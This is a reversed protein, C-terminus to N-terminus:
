EKQKLAEDLANKLSDIQEQTPLLRPQDVKMYREIEAATAGLKKRREWLTADGGKSITFVVWTKDTYAAGGEFVLTRSAADLKLLRGGDSLGKEGAAVAGMSAHDPVDGFVRTFVVAPLLFVDGIAAFPFSVITGLSVGSDVLRYCYYFYSGTPTLKEQKLIGWTGARLPVKSAAVETGMSEHQPVFDLGFQLVRDNRDSKALTEAVTKALQIQGATVPNGLSFRSVLDGVFSIFGSTEEAEASDYEYVEIEVHLVDSELHKPGYTIRSIQSAFSEDAIGTMPGLIKVLETSEADAPGERFRFVVVVENATGLDPLYKFFANDFVLFFTDPQADNAGGWKISGSKDDPETWPGMLAGGEVVFPHIDGNVLCGPALLGTLLIATRVGNGRDITRAM